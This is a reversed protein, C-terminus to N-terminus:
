IRKNQTFLVWKWKWCMQPKLLKLDFGIPSASCAIGSACLGACSAPSRRGPKPIEWALSLKSLSFLSPPLVATLSGSDTGPSTNDFAAIWLGFRDQLHWRPEELLSCTSFLCCTYSLARTWAPCFTPFNMVNRCWSLCLSGAVAKWCSDSVQLFEKVISWLDSYAFTKRWLRDKVNWLTTFFFRGDTTYSIWKNPTLDWVPYQFCCSIHKSIAALTNQWAPPVQLGRDVDGLPECGLAVGRHCMEGKSCRPQEWWGWQNLLLHCEQSWVAQLIPWLIDLCFSHRSPAWSTWWSNCQFVQLGLECCFFAAPM